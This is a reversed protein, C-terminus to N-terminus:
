KQKSRSTSGLLGVLTHNEETGGLLDLSLLVIYSTMVAEKWTVLEDNMCMWENSM